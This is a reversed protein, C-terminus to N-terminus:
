LWVGLAEVITRSSGAKAFWNGLLRARKYSSITDNDVKYKPAVYGACSLFGDSDLKLINMICGFRIANTSISLTGNIRKALDTLVIPNRHLWMLLGTNKNCHLFTSALDNSLVVPLVAYAIIMSPLNGKVSFHADCFNALVSACFAPNTEAFIDHTVIM